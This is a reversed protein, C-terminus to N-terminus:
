PYDEVYNKTGISHYFRVPRDLPLSYRWENGPYMRKGPLTTCDEPDSQGDECQQGEQLYVNANGTNRVKLERGLREVQLNPAVIEPYVIALVEYGILVKLGNRDASVPGTVPRATIRYVREEADTGGLNVLRVARAAGPPIVLKNPTVLMGHRRPDGSIDIRQEDPTGPNLVRRPEIQVYMPESGVNSIEVDQRNPEGPEFHLIANSLAMSAQLPAAGYILLLLLALRFLGGPLLGAAPM